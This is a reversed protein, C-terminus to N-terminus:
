KALFASLATDSQLLEEDKVVHRQEKFPPVPLTLRRVDKLNIGLYSTGRVHQGLFEQSSPSAISYMVYESCLDDTIPIVAIERSVNGGVMADPCVAM